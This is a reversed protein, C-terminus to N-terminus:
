LTFFDEYASHAKKTDGSLALARALEAKSLPGIWGNMVVGKKNSSKALSERRQWQTGPRRM